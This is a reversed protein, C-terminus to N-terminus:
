GFWARMVTEDVLDVTGRPAGLIRDFADSYSSLTSAVEDYGITNAQRALFMETAVDQLGLLLMLMVHASALPSKVDFVGEKVGQEVIAALPPVMRHALGHRFKERVVANEDSTWVEFLSLVLAKRDTKWRGIGGFLGKLKDPAALSPDDVVPAVAALGAEVMRDIVAELLAQKSDFYHYFAGRSAELEDLVDQVSMDEYGKTAVLRQAVDVFADRRVTYHEAKVTRPM